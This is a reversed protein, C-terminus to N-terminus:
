KENVFYYISESFKNNDRKTRMLVPRYFVDRIKFGCEKAIEPYLNHKDNVVIFIKARTKMYKTM